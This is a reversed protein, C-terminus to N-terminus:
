LTYFAAGVRVTNGDDENEEVEAAPGIRAVDKAVPEIVARQEETCTVSTCAIVSVLKEKLLDAPVDEQVDVAACSVLSLGKEASELIARTLEIHAKDMLLTGGVLYLDEYEAGIADLRHELGTVVLVDGNVRLYSLQELWPGDELINVDGDVYLKGGRRRLLAENLTADGDLYVCGDPLIQIDANEDFLPLAAEVLSEAILLKKTIFRVDKEALRQFDIDGALAVIQSAAYYLADQKARLVFTRDLVTTPKLRICGDPYTRLSGNVTMGSLLAAMSEPASVSGNIMIAAYSKLVEESGPAIDLSGNLILFTKEEPVQGPFMQMSGNVTTLRIDGEINIVNAAGVNVQYRSLLAQAEPSTILTACGISVEDYAALTEETASRVDCIACGVSLKKKNEM